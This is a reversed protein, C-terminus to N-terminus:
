KINLSSGQDMKDLIKKLYPAEESAKIAEIITDYIREPHPVGYLMYFSRSRPVKVSRGGTVALGARVDKGASGGLTVFSMDSGLGLGPQSVPILNGFNFLKGLIGKELIIDSVRSYVLDRRIKKSLGNYEFIIRRDTVIYKHARRHMEVALVGLIGAVAGVIFTYRLPLKVVFALVLPVGITILLTLLLYRWVIKVLAYILTPVVIALTYVVYEGYAGLLGGIVPISRLSTSVQNGMFYIMISVVLVYVWLLAQGAFALPHPHIVALIREESPTEVNKMECSGILDNVHVNNLM